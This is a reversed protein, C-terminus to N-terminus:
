FESLKTYLRSIFMNEIGLYLMEEFNFTRNIETILLVRRFINNVRVIGVKEKEFKQMEIKRLKESNINQDM